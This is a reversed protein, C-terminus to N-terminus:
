TIKPGFSPKPQGFRCSLKKRCKIIFFPKNRKTWRRQWRQGEHEHQEFEEVKVNINISRKSRKRWRREQSGEGTVHGALPCIQLKDAIPHDLYMTMKMQLPHRTWTTGFKLSHRCGWFVNKSIDLNSPLHELQQM